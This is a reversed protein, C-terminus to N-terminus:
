SAEEGGFIWALFLVAPYGTLALRFPFQGLSLILLALLGAWALASDASGGGERDNGDRRPLRRRLTVFLVGVGWLLAAGGLLGTEALVELPENHANVFMVQTQSKLFKRGDELLALKADAYESRYAGHGVGLLPHERFMWLAAQWGDLRGTLVSNMSGRSLQRAKDAVRERLPPVTAVLLGAAVIVLAAVAAARRLPLVWLWLLLSAVVLALGSTLTQTAALAYLCVVLGLGWFLREPGKRTLLRHQAILCPLVLMVSLDGASGAYSTVGLRQSEVDGTFDFPRFLGHFQLIGVVSLGLAPLLLGGLLRNLVTPSFGASWGILAAAAIALSTWAAWGHRPFNTAALSLGAISVMPISARLAPLRWLAKWSVREVVQLRWTLFFLSALALTQALVLKPLRFADKAGSDHHWWVLLLLAWVAGEALVAGVRAM